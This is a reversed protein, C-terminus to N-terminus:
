ASPPAAASAQVDKKAANEMRSSVARLALAALTFVLAAVRMEEAYFALAVFILVVFLKSLLWSWALRRDVDPALNAVLAAYFWFMALCTYNAAVSLAYVLLNISEPDRHSFSVRIVVPMLAVMSLLLMNLATAPGDVDRLHAVIRRHIAWVGGILVFSLFYVMLPFKWADWLSQGPVIEPKIEIASLTIAIAFVGDSLMVLRDLHRQGVHHDSIPERVRGGM